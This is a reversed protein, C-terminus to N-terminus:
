NSRIRYSYNVVTFSYLVIDGSYSYKIPEIRKYMLFRWLITVYM